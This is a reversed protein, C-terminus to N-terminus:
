FLLRRMQCRATGQWYEFRRISGQVIFYSERLFGVGYLRRLPIKIIKAQVSLLDETLGLKSCNYLFFSICRVTSSSVPLISSFFTYSAGEAKLAFKSIYLTPSLTKCRCPVSMVMTNGVSFSVRQQQLIHPQDFLLSLSIQVWQPSGNILDM